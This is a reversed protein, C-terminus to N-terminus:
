REWKKFYKFITIFIIIAFGLYDNISITTPDFLVEDVLKNITTLYIIEAVCLIWKGHQQQKLLLYIVYTYGVFGLATGKYFISIGYHQKVFHWTNYTIIMVIFTVVLIINPRKDTMPARDLTTQFIAISVTPM